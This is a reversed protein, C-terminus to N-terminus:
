SFYFYSCAARNLLNWVNASLWITLFYWAINWTIQGPDLVVIKKVSLRFQPIALKLEKYTIQSHHWVLAPHSSSTALFWLILIWYSKLPIWHLLSFYLYWCKWLLLSYCLYLYVILLEPLRYCLFLCCPTLPAFTLATGIVSFFWLCVFLLVFGVFFTLCFRFGVFYRVGVLCLWYCLRSDVVVEIFDIQNIGSVAM